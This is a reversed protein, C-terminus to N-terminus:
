YLELGFEDKLQMLAQNKQAMMQFKEVRGVPRITETAESVRVTMVVKSNKLRGRLYDQLEPILATFDKAAFENDVVVEFTTSNNLLVPRLMQMRKTLADQEKPLQGAYEQWYYNLDRDNFIFDEEPQQVRPVHTTATNQTAQDRQPNKISVGLNSMKMVPIKREEKVTPAVGAGQSPASSAAGSSASAGPQVAASAQPHRATTGNVAQTTVSSPSTHLSAQQVQTASAVQPQQAAAPQTFIPKITKTPGRGGSVDDGETTLQAVQILTLEVLLRKNKSIRYNLDCENCLKMARYLFPLPCKQAQEQYSQRISAGVELLPLTVPDKGVLLDRFHSSLGTIFHSGDFGKNLIDNFLLLADSVKNELFCDTLRFYYEYDLVNLNDIVSKYTINGGTFSVVQDFISLADRMGGDAKMAIVNLAEPEATIGEKSAVYSLHNVTDEVSIRNFDYIQCRSLITPLIKHKETTALIFIAHRPPEELTKLFANFASASLMHVEDIIYVKYKGIQPPIRVQEVLQRIDDVSNNSAADLEHINYSRQENFAVCSECQNCAEGDATPTM